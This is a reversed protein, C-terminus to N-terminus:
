RQLLECRPCRIATGTETAPPICTCPCNRVFDRLDKIQRLLNEADPIPVYSFASNDALVVTRILELLDPVAREEDPLDSPERAREADLLTDHAIQGADQPTISRM